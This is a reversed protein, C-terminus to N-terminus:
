GKKPEEGCIVGDDDGREGKAWHSICADWNTGGEEKKKWATAPPHGRVFSGWEATDKEAALYCDSGKKEEEGGFGKLHFASGLGAKRRPVRKLAIVERKGRITWFDRKKNRTRTDRRLKEEEVGKRKYGPGRPM